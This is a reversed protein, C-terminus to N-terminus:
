FVLLGGLGVELVLDHVDVILSQIFSKLSFLEDDFPTKKVQPLLVHEIPISRLFLFLDVVDEFREGPEATRLIVVLQNFSDDFFSLKPSPDFFKKRVFLQPHLGELLHLYTDVGSRLVIHDLLSPYRALVGLVFVLFLSEFPYAIRRPSLSLRPDVLVEVTGLPAVLPIRLSPREAFLLDAEAALQLQVEMLVEEDFFKEDSFTGRLSEQAAIEGGFRQSEIMALDDLDEIEQDSLVEDNLLFLNVVLM